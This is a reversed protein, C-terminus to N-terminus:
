GATIGRPPASTEALPVMRELTADWVDLRLCAWLAPLSLTVTHPRQLEPVAAMAEALRYFPIGPNLHHVHHYGINGTFWAAVPGTKLYSSSELAADTYQWTERSRLVMSPFNHQVYFLLAGSACAVALPLLVALLWTSLGGLWLAAAHLAGHFALTALVERRNRRDRLFPGICMGWLFVTLYGLAITLPHRTARYMWRDRPPLKEYMARTLTAYSGIHSGVIQATHAHHYNHTSRWVRSPTLVVYGFLTILARMARAFRGPGRYLAGHLADHYLIFARVLILGTIASALARLALPAAHLAAVLWVLKLAGFTVFTERLTRSPDEDAFPRTADIM